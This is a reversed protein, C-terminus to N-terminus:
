KAQGETGASSNAKSAVEWSLRRMACQETLRRTIGRTAGPSAENTYSAVALFKGLPSALVDGGSGRTSRVERAREITPQALASFDVPRDSSQVALVLMYEPGVTDANVEGRPTVITTKEPIRNNM